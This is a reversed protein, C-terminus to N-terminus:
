LNNTYDSFIITANLTLYRVDLVMELEKITSIWKIVDGEDGSEIRERTVMQQPLSSESSSVIEVIEVQCDVAETIFLDPLKAEFELWFHGLKHENQARRFHDFSNSAAGYFGSVGESVM